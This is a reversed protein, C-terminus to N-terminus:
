RRVEYLTAQVELPEEFIYRVGGSLSRAPPASGTAGTHSGRQYGVRLSGHGAGPWHLTHVRVTFALAHKVRNKHKKFLGM